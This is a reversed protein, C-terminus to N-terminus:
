DIVSEGNYFENLEVDQTETPKGYILYGNQKNGLQFIFGTHHFAASSSFRYVICGVSIPIFGGTATKEFPYNIGGGLNM